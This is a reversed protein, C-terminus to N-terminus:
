SGGQSAPSAGPGPAALTWALLVAGIVSLPAVGAWVAYEHAQPLRQDMWAFGPVIWFRGTALVAGYYAFVVALREWFVLDCGRVKKKLRGIAKKQQFPSNM